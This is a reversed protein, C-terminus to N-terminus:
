RRKALQQELRFRVVETVLEVPLPRDLPFQIAGKSRKLGMADAREAVLAVGDAGPYFGVHRKGAAFHVLNGNVKYTPMGWAMAQEAQPALQEILARLQDMLRRHEGDYGALYDDIVTM